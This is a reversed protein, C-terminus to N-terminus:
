GLIKATDVLRQFTKALESEKKPDKIKVSLALIRNSPSRLIVYRADEFGNSNKMAFTMAEYGQKSKVIKYATPTGKNERRIFYLSIEYLREWDFDQSPPATMTTMVPSGDPSFLERQGFSSERGVKWDKPVEIVFDKTSVRVFGDKLDKVEQGFAASFIGTLAFLSILWKM